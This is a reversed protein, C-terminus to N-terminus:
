LVITIKDIVKHITVRIPIYNLTLQNTVNSFEILASLSMEIKDVLLIFHFKSFESFTFTVLVAM